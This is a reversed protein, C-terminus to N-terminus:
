GHDQVEEDVLDSRSVSGIEHLLISEILLLVGIVALMVTYFVIM